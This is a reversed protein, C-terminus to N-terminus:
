QTGLERGIKKIPAIRPTRGVFSQWTEIDSLISSTLVPLMNHAALPECELFSAFMVAFLTSCPSSRLNELSIGVGYRSPKVAGAQCIILGTGLGSGLSILLIFTWATLHGLHLSVTIALGPSLTHGTQPLESVWDGFGQSWGIHQALSFALLTHM